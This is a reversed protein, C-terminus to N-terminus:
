SQEVYLYFLSNNVRRKGPLQTGLSLFLVAFRVRLLTVPFQYGKESYGTLFYGKEIYYILAGASIIPAAFAAGAAGTDVGM